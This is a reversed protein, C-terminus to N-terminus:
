FIRNSFASNYTENISHKTIILSLRSLDPETIEVANFQKLFKSLIIKTTTNCFIYYKINLDPHSQYLELVQSDSISYFQSFFNNYFENQLEIQSNEFRLKFWHLNM